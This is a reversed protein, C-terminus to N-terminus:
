THNVISEVVEKCYNALTEAQTSPFCSANISALIVINKKSYPFTFYIRDSKTISNQNRFIYIDELIIAGLIGTKKHKILALEIDRNKLLWEYANGSITPLIKSLVRYMESHYEAIEDVSQLSNLTNLLQDCLEMGSELFATKAEEKRISDKEYIINSYLKSVHSIKKYLSYSFYYYTQLITNIEIRENAFGTLFSLKIYKAHKDNKIKYEFAQASEIYENENLLKDLVSNLEQLQDKTDIVRKQKKLNYIKIVLNVVLFLIFLGHIIQSVTITMSFTKELVATAQSEDFYYMVVWQTIVEIIILMIGTFLIGLRELLKKM